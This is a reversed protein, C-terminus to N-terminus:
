ESKESVPFFNFDDEAGDTLVAARVQDVADELTEAEVIAAVETQGPAVDGEVFNPHDESIEIGADHLRKKAADVDGQVGVTHKEM